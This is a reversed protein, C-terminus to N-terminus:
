TNEEKILAEYATHFRQGRIKDPLPARDPADLPRTLVRSGSFLSGIPEPTGM